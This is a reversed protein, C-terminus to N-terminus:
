WNLLNNPDRQFLIVRNLPEKDFIHQMQTGARRDIMRLLNIDEQAANSHDQEAKLKGNTLAITRASWINSHISGVLFDITPQLEGDNLSAILSEYQEIKKQYTDGRMMSGDESVFTGFRALMRGVKPKGERAKIKEQSKQQMENLANQLDDYRQSFADIVDAIGNPHYTFDPEVRPYDQGQSETTKVIFDDARSIATSVASRGRQVASRWRSPSVESEHGSM